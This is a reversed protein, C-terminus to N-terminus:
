PLREPRWKGQLLRALNKEAQLGLKRVAPPLREVEKLVRAHNEYRKVSGDAVWRGRKKIEEPPRKRM